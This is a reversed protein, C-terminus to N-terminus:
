RKGRAYYCRQGWGEGWYSGGEIKKTKSPHCDKNTRWFEALESEPLNWIETARTVDVDIICRNVGMTSMDTHGHPRFSKGLPRLAWFAVKIKQPSFTSARVLALVYHPTEEIVRYGTPWIEGREYTIRGDEHITMDGANQLAGDNCQPLWLDQFAKMGARNPIEPWEETGPQTELYAWAPPLGLLAWAALLVVLFRM